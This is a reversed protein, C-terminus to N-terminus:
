GRKTNCEHTLGELFDTTTLLGDILMVTKVEYPAFPLTIAIDTGITLCREGAKGDTELLRLVLGTQEETQKVATVHVNPESTSLLSLSAIKKEGKHKSDALYVLGTNLQEALRYATHNELTGGHPYLMLTFEHEGLDSYHYTDHDRQWPLACDGQAFITSRLVCIDLKDNDIRYAYLGDNIFLGGCGDDNSVDVFRHMFSDDVDYVGRKQVAYPIEARVNGDDVRLDFTLKLRTAPQSYRLYSRIKLYKADNYLEYLQTLQSEKYQYVARITSRHTDEEVKTLSVLAFEDGDWSLIGKGGGWADRHDTFVRAQTPGKLMDYGTKKEIVSCVTGSTKDFAVKIHENELEYQSTTVPKAYHAVCALDRESQSLRYVTVGFAPVEATMLFRRRGGLTGHVVPTAASVRQYPIENGRADYIYLEDKCFWELEVEIVEKVAYSQTNFVCLPFGQGNTDMSQVIHQMAYREIEKTKAIVGGLDQVTEECADKISTGPLVDHFQNFCIRQWLQEFDHVTAARKGSIMAAMNTLKEARVTMSEAVRNLKKIRAHISYCGVNCKQIEGEYTPLAPPLTKVFNALTSFQLSHAEKHKIVSQINEITPGGGHNGVGFFCPFHALGAAGEKVAQINQLLMPEFWTTYEGHIAITRISAGSPTLWRFVPPLSKLNPRMYVYAEMGGQSLLQPLNANHGFSDVCYGIRTIDGFLRKYIRQAYLAQRAFSEGSPLNCDPEILNGGVLEWRGEAVRARIEDLMEPNIDELWIYFYASGATFTFDPFERMRDLASAFTAKVAQMGETKTWFWVPDIHSNGIMHLTM